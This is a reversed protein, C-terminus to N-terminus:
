DSYLEIKIELNIRRRKGGLKTLGQKVNDQQKDMDVRWKPIKTLPIKEYICSSM